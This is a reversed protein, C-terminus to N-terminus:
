PANDFRSPENLDYTRSIAPQLRAELEADVETDTALLIVQHSAQPFYDLMSLRHDSDLRGLPTDLVVPLPAQSVERLAWITATALLQKEGASLQKREFRQGRRQLTLRFTEPDIEIDSILDTKRCLQNFRRVLAQELLGIKKRRLQRAYDALVAHSKVALQVRNNQQEQKTLQDRVRAQEWQTQQIKFTLRDKEEELDQNTQELEAQRRSYDHLTEVLPQLTEDAPVLTLEKEIRQREDELRNLHAVTRCFQRPVEDAARDIWSLLTQRDQESVRLMIEAPDITPPQATQKITTELKAIMKQRAGEDLDVDLDRWYDPESLTNAVQEFKREIVQQASVAQEYEKELKLRSAVLRNMQPAIAFPLLGNALEQAQKRLMEIEGELRQQRAETQDLREAFLGGEGAIKQKQKSIQQALRALQQRNSEQEAALKQRQTELEELQRGLATLQQNLTQGDNGRKEVQRSLYIDLDKELRQVLHLGFLTEVTEKLVTAAAEDSVLTELKEGDFFFIDAIRPPVLERLFSDRQGNDKLEALPEGNEHITITEKIKSDRVRQWRREIDYICRRGSDVYDMSLSLSAETAPQGHEPRHLRDALHKEYAARSVRSGLALSGHLCLRLAETLTTKGAGNKGKFLVIPRNFQEQSKPTLLFEHAGGYIGFNLLKLERLIM